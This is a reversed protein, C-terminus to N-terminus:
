GLGLTLADLCVRAIELSARADSLPNHHDLDLGLADACARLGISRSRGARVLGSALSMTCVGRHTWPSAHPAILRLLFSEDFRLKHSCLGAGATIQGVMQAAEQRSVARRDWRAPDYGAIDLAAPDADILREPEVLVLLTDEVQWTEGNVRIAAVAIVEHTQPDLGTTEVDVFVLPGYGRRQGASRQDTM